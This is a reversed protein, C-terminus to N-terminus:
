ETYMKRIRQISNKVPPLSLFIVTIIGESFIYIGNYVMTYALANWGDWAYEAWFIYGSLAAFIWRCTIGALYGLVLGHKRKWFFGAVGLSGFALIYDMVIQFPYYFVPDIFMQLVGHTVAAIIGTRPGYFYGILCVFLMSLLTISGGFPFHFIKIMSTVTALALGVGCFALNKTNIAPKQDKKRPLIAAILLLLLCLLIFTIYGPTTFSYGGDEMPKFLFNALVSM